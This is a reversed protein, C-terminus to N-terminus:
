KFLSSVSSLNEVMKSFPSLRKHNGTQKKQVGIGKKLPQKGKVTSDKESPLCVTKWPFIDMGSLM